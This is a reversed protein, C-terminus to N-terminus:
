TLYAFAFDEHNGALVTINGGEKKAQERLVRIRELIALSDTNRDALIDGHFVIERNGGIWNGQEDIAGSKQLNLEFARRSGHLDGM